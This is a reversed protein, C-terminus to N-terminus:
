NENILSIGHRKLWSELTEVIKAPVGYVVSKPPIDKTVVAGAGVISYEGITIGPLIVANAGIKVHDKIIPGKFEQEKIAFLNDNVTVVGASIFVNNGILSNGTIHANNMIRTKSGIKSNYNISVGTGLIVDDGINVGERIQVFDAILCNKGIKVNNYIIVHNLIKTNTGIFIYKEQMDFKRMTLSTKAPMVGIVNNNGIKVDDEIFSTLVETNNGIKVNNGIVNEERIIVNHGTEFNEGIKSGLYIISGARIVANDGIELTLDNIKRSPMYGVIATDDIKCNKGLKVFEKNLIM